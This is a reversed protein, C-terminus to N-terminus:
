SAGAPLHNTGASSSAARLVRGISDSGPHKFTQNGAGITKLARRLKQMFM